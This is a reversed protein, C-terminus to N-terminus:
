AAWEEATDEAARLEQRILAGAEEGDKIAEEIMAKLALDEAERYDENLAKKITVPPTRVEEQALQHCLGKHTYAEAVITKEAYIRLRWVDQVSGKAPCGPTKLNFPLSYSIAVQILDLLTSCGAFMTKLPEYDYEVKVKEVKRVPRGNVYVIESKSM